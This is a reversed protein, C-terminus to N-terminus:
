IIEGEGLVSSTQTNYRITLTLEKITNSCSLALVNSSYWKEDSKM